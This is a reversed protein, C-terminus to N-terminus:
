SKLEYWGAPASEYTVTLTCTARAGSDTTAIVTTEGPFVGTVKGGDVTAISVDGSSWKIASGDSATASLTIQEGREVTATESLGSITVVEKAKVTVACTATVDGSKATITASGEGQATVSGRSSVTAVSENDSSWTVSSGDSATAVLTKSEGVTLELTTESLTITVDGGSCAVLSFALAAALLLTLFSFVRKKM